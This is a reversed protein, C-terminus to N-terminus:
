NEDKLEQKAEKKSILDLAMKEALVKIEKEADLEIQQKFGIKFDPVYGISFTFIKNFIKQLSYNTIKRLITAHRAGASNALENAKAPVRELQSIYSANAATFATRIVEEITKTLVSLREKGAYSNFVNKANGSDTLSGDSLFITSTFGESALKKEWSIKQKKSLFSFDHFPRSFIRDNNLESFLGNILKNWSEYNELCPKNTPTEFLYAPITNLPNKRWYSNDTNKIENIRNINQYLIPIKKAFSNFSLFKNNYIYFRLIEKNTWFERILYESDNDGKNKILSYTINLFIVDDYAEVYEIWKKSPIVFRIDDGSKNLVDFKLLAKGHFNKQYVLNYFIKELNNNLKIKEFIDLANQDKSEFFLGKGYELNTILSSIIKRLDLYIQQDNVNKISQQLNNEFNFLKKITDIFWM